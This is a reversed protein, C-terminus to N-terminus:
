SVLHLFGDRLEAVHHGLLRAEDLNSTTYVTTQDFIRLLKAVISARQGRDGPNLNKLPDDVLMVYPALVLARGIVAQGLCPCTDDMQWQLDQETLGVLPAIQGVRDRVEQRSAGARRYLSGMNEGVTRNKKFPELQAGLENDLSSRTGHISIYGRQPILKGAILKLLTSKGSNPPGYVAFVESFQIEVEGTGVAPIYSKPYTYEVHHLSVAPGLGAWASPAAQSVSGAPTAMPAAPAAPAPRAPASPVVIPTASGAPGASPIPTEAVISARRGASTDLGPPAVPMTPGAINARLEHVASAQTQAGFERLLNEANLLIQTVEDATYETRGHALENRDKLLISALDQCRRNLSLETRDEFADRWKAAIALLLVASDKKKYEKKDDPTRRFVETWNPGYKKTMMRDVVPALGKPLEQQLATDILSRYSTTSHQPGAVPESQGDMKAGTQVARVFTGNVFTIETAM